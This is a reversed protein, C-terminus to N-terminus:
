HKLSFRLNFDPGNFWIQTTVQGTKIQSRFGIFEPGALKHTLWIDRDYKELFIRSLDLGNFIQGSGVQGSGGVRLSVRSVRPFVWGLRTLNFFFCFPYFFWFFNFFIINLFQSHSPLVQWHKQGVWRFGENVKDTVDTWRIWSGLVSRSRMRKYDVWEIVAWRIRWDMM